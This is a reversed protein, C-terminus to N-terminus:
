ACSLKPLLNTNRVELQTKNLTTKHPQNIHKSQYEQSPRASYFYFKSLFFSNFVHNFRQAHSLKLNKNPATTFLKYTFYIKKKDAFFKYTFYSSLSKPNLLRSITHQQCDKNELSQMVM